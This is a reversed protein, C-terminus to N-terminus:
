EHPELGEKSPSDSTFPNSLRKIREEDERAQRILEMGAQIKQGQIHIVLMALTFEDTYDALGAPLYKQAVAATPGALQQLEDKSYAMMEGIKDHVAKPARSCMAWTSIAQVGLWVAPALRELGALEDAQKKSETATGVAKEIKQRTSDRKVAGWAIKGAKNLPITVTGVPQDDESDVVETPAPAPSEPAPSVPSEPAPAPNVPAPAPATLSDDESVASVPAIESPTEPKLPELSPKPAAGLDKRKRPM